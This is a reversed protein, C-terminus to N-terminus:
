ATAAAASGRTARATPVSALATLQSELKERGKGAADHVKTHRKVAADVEKQAAAILKGGEKLAKDHAKQATAALADAQKKAKAPTANASAAVAESDTAATLNTKIATKLGAEAAKKEAVTLIKSPARAM